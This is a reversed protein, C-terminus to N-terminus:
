HAPKDTRGTFRALMVMIADMDAVKSYEPHMGDFRNLMMSFVLHEGAATTVYGSTTRSWRLSGTKARVNGAAPTGKMRNRLTGDVGAIPLANLYAEASKHHNMFTLLAVTANPTTLNDRSLGSGEEFITDGRKIGAEALFKNLERIGASSASETSAPDKAFQLKAGVHALMLDTYLNQSPKMVERVIDRVPLSEMSGLETWQKWDLPMVERDKWDVTRVGGAVTIGHRALAEKFLTVFLGAPNHMTVDEDSGRDDIPVKGSIYLINQAVPRYLDINRRSGKAVTQTRNSVSVYSTPPIFDLRCPAGETEGPKVRLQLVNDNITLASVEAGYYEQFDEWDWGPGFPPDHFYSDDGFLDGTIRKVGANTLAAVLPELAKFISGEHLRANITPDGRGYVMLDGKLTGQEDPRCTAYLSTKIRYDPGLRDLALAMTYLKSNSAPSSLKQADHDFITKGSDLSVIKIGWLASAYRPHNILAKIRKQLSEVTDPTKAAEQAFASFALLGIVVGTLASKM